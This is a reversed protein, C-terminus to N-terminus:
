VRADAGSALPPGCPGATSGFRRPHPVIRRHGDRAAEYQLGTVTHDGVGVSAADGHHMQVASELVATAEQHAVITLPRVEVYARGIRLLGPLQSGRIL